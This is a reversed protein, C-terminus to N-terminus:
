LLDELLEYLKPSVNFMEAMEYYEKLKEPNKGGKGRVGKILINKPTHESEIFEMINVKYGMTELLSGRLSDTLISSFREKLIGHKLIPQFANNKVQSFLEHQCCPVSLIVPVSAKIGYALAYDTATDCAHLTIMMSVDKEESFESVDGKHFTLHEYGCKLALDNCFDIVDAKLDVGKIAVNKELVVNLYYYLAFTLYSKGCGFDLIYGEAPIDELVEKVIELFKNLQRFKKRKDKIIFGEKNMIGLEILMSIPKGEKLIYNKERDHSKSEKVLENKLYTKKFNHKQNMIIKFSAGETYFDWQKYGDKFINEFSAMAEAKSFTNIHQVKNEYYMSFRLVNKGKIEIAEAIVKHYITQKKFPSSIIAKIIKDDYAKEILNLIEM